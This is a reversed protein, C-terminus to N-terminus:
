VQLMQVAGVLGEPLDVGVLKEQRITDILGSGEAARGDASQQQSVSKINNNNSHQAASPQSSRNFAPKNPLPRETNPHATVAALSRM